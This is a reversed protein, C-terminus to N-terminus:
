PLCALIMAKEDNNAAVDAEAYHILLVFFDHVWIFIQM